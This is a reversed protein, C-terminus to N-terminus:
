EYVFGVMDIARMLVIVGPFNSHFKLYTIKLGIKTDNISPQPMEQSIALTSGSRQQWIADSPWLSNFKTLM